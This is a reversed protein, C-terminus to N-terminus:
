GENATVEGIFQRVAAAFLDPTQVAMFHGTELIELRGSPIMGAVARAMEVPRSSDLTGALVLVPCAIFPYVARAEIQNLMPILHAYAGADNCTWRARYQLFRDPNLARLSEPYLGALYTDRISRLGNEAIKSGFAAVQASRAADMPESRPSTIILSAVSDGSNRCYTAGIDGGLACGAIHIPGPLALYDLLAVLDAVAIALDFTTSPESHGFGRQDYRVVRFDNKLHAAVEDFSEICGGAEHLLVICPGRDGDVVYRLCTGNIEAWPM